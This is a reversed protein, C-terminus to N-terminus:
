GRGHVRRLEDLGPTTSPPPGAPPDPREVDDAARRTGGILRHRGAPTGGLERLTSLLKPGVEGLREERDAITRGRDLTAAYARALHAAAADGPGLPLAALSAEVSAVFGGATAMRARGSAAPAAAATKRATKTATKRATTRKAPVKAPTKRTSM